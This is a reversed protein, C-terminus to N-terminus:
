FDYIWRQVVPHNWKIAVALAFMALAAWDRAGFRDPSGHARVFELLAGTPCGYKCYAKPVLFSAALGVVAVGITAAGASGLLYADFPELGALDFDIPLMVVLLVFLLLAGPLRRLGAEVGAPLSVHWRGPGFKLIWEQLVGHPCIQQCYLPRRAAWPIVLAAAALLAVGPGMRWGIGSKAWGALLSQALLDGTLLGVYGVVYIQFWRRARARGARRTFALWIGMVVAGVVGIDEREWRVPQVKFKEQAIAFRHGIGQAVALSTMTAGSVGEMGMAELDLAAVQEWTLGNWTKKFTWDQMVDQAHTRTDETSRIRMGIVKGDAGLAVFTDTVGSYGIIHAVHPMTRLLYGVEAGDADLVHWGARPSHDPRLAAANTFFSQAEAVTVPADGAIRQRVHHDRIVWCVALLLGARYAQLLAARIWGGRRSGGAADGENRSTDNVQNM